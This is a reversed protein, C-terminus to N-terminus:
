RWEEGTAAPGAVERPVAVVQVDLGAARLLGVQEPSAGSDTILLDVDSLDAIKALNVQGLKSSDAVVVVRQAREIMRQNTRAEIADHTTLGGTASIGDVGMVAVGINLSELFRECWAGVLEYSEARMVGGTVFVRLRPRMTLEMAINIANTIITLESRDALHRAVETTTTGGSLAIAQPRRAITAAAAIAIRRKALRHRADRFRVPLELVPPEPSSEGLHAGGHTRTLLNQAELLALDRRITAQSVALKEALSAVGAPGSSSLLNLVESLRVTRRSSTRPAASDLHM